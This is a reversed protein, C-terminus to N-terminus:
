VMKKRDEEYVARIRALAEDHPLTWRCVPCPTVPAQTDSYQLAEYKYGCEPCTWQAVFTM